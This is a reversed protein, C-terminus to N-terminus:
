CGNLNDYCYDNPMSRLHGRVMTGDSRMYTEINQYQPPSGYGLSGSMLGVGIATQLGQMKEQYDRLGNAALRYDMLEVRNQSLWESTKIPRSSSGRKMMAQMRVEYVEACRALWDEAKAMRGMAVRIPATSAPSAALSEEMGSLIASRGQVFKVGCHSMADNANPHDKPSLTVSHLRYQSLHDLKAGSDEMSQKFKAGACGSLAVVALATVIAKM